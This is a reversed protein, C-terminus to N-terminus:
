PARRFSFAASQLVSPTIDVPVTSSASELQVWEGGALSSRLDELSLFVQTTQGSALATNGLGLTFAATNQATGLTVVSRGYTFGASNKAAVAVNAGINVSSAYGSSSLSWSLKVPLGTLTITKASNNTFTLTGFPISLGLTSTAQTSGVELWESSDFSIPISVTSGLSNKATLQCNYHTHPDVRFTLLAGSPSPYISRDCVLTYGAVQDTEADVIKVESLAPVARPTKLFVPATTIPAPPPPASARLLDNAAKRTKPGFYGAVPTIKHAAQFKKVAGQTLAGFYGTVLGEPYIAPGQAKLFQQLASVETGKMGLFLDRDFSAFVFFPIFVVAAVVIVIKKLM